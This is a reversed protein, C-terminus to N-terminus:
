NEASHLGGAGATFEVNGTEPNDPNAKSCNWLCAGCHMCKERDFLPVGGDPNTTIAQGSCMDVCMKEGCKACVEPRVFRVHDAYGGPAQVKGGMLLADQHSVLLKGDFPIAPWGAREMLADHVALGKEGCERRIAAIEAAPIRGEYYKEISPIRAHPPVQKGPIHLKGGTLGALGMGMMGRLFGSAFGDRSRAAVKAERDVWSKRRRAVYAERLNDRTFPKKAELLEVVGEALLTGTAWAEDVGSGTLVNTSGSGEGIRAFGDGALVPEGRRGAELLSKAGFSRMTAGELHKWLAPHTMWHQLYRYGTRAPNDFWSPVFVGLSAVRNRYVYLFGFIGPEPYGFTHIVTGAELACSEPLDVVMKLGVAWEHRFNGEPLGFKEDLQRGVPGM